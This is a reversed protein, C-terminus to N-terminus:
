AGMIRLPLQTILTCLYQNKLDKKGEEVSYGEKKGGREREREREREKVYKETIFAPNKLLMHLLITCTKKNKKLSVCM